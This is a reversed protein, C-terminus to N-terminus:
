QKRKKAVPVPAPQDVDDSPGSSRGTVVSSSNTQPEASPISPSKAAMKLRKNLARLPDSFVPGMSKTLSSKWDALRLSYM